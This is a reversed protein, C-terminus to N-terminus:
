ASPSTRRASSRATPSRRTPPRIRSSTSSPRAGRPLPDDRRGERHRERPHRLVVPPRHRMGRLQRGGPHLLPRSVDPRHPGQRV